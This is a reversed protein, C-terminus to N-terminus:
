RRIVADQKERSELFAEESLGKAYEEIAGISELIHQLFVLHEKSM